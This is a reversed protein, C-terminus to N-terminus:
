RLQLGSINKDDFLSFHNFFSLFALSKISCRWFLQLKNPKVINVMVNTAFVFYHLITDRTVYLMEDQKTLSINLLLSKSHTKAGFLLIIHLLYILLTFNFRDFVCKFQNHNWQIVQNNQTYYTFKSFIYRMEQYGSHIVVIKNMTSVSNSSIHYSNCYKFANKWYQRFKNM